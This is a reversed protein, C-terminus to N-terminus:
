KALRLVSSATTWYVYLGDTAIGGRPQGKQNKAFTQAAAGCGSAPCRYIDYGIDDRWFISTGDSVPNSPSFSTGLTSPNGGCGAISCSVVTKSAGNIWFAKGASATVGVSGPGLTRPSTCPFTSCAHMTRTTGNAWIVTGQEAALDFVTGTTPVITTPVCADPLCRRIEGQSTGDFVSWYLYTGDTWAGRASPQSSAVVTPNQACGGVACSLIRGGSFDGFFVKQGVRALHFAYGTGLLKPAGVCGTKPCEYVAGSGGEVAFYVNAADVTLTTAQSLGTALPEPACPGDCAPAADRVPADGAADRPAADVPPPAADTGPEGTPDTPASTPAGDVSPDPAVESDKLGSCAVVVAPLM